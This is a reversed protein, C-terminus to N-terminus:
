TQSFDIGVGDGGKTCLAVSLTRVESSFKARPSSRIRARTESPSEQCSFTMRTIPLEEGASRGGAYVFRGQLSCGECLRLSACPFAVFLRARVTGDESRADMGLLSM